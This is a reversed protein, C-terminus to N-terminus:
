AIVFQSMASWPGVQGKTNKWRGYIFATKGADAESFNLVFPTRTVDCNYPTAEATAPATTGALVHLELFKVGVPKSRSKPTSNQDRYTCTLQGPTAGVVGIIPSTAPPPTLTPRTDHIPLGLGIKDNDAVGANAQVLKAMNRIVVTLANRAAQTAAVAPSTRTAANGSVAFAAAFAQYAVNLNAADGATFGYKAPTAVILTNFNLAWAAFAVIKPPIYSTSM